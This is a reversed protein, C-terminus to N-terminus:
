ARLMSYLHEQDRYFPWSHSHTAVFFLKRVCLTTLARASASELITNGSFHKHSQAHQVLTNIWLVYLYARADALVRMTVCISLVLIPLVTTAIPAHQTIAVCGIKDACFLFIDRERRLNVGSPIDPRASM